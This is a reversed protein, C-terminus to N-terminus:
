RQAAGGRVTGAAAFEAVRQQTYALMEPPIQQPGGLASAYLALQATEELAVCVRVADASREHFALIGHNALLVAKSKPTIVGRINNVSEQSGRPGYAALPVGEEMGFRAAAESWCLIPRGAVAFATAFPSHTHIVCGTEPRQEYVVTHMHVVEHAVPPLEGELVEGDLRLRAIGAPTLGQLTGGATFLFEPKGPLRLSINGHGSMSLTGSRVVAECTDILQQKLEALSDSM